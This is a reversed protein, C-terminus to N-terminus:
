LPLGGAVAEQILALSSQIWIDNAITNDGTGCLRKFHAYEKQWTPDEGDVTETEQAPRGSPFVRKRLELQSPGWKCLGNMHVSGEAGWIDIMFSNKWSLYSM